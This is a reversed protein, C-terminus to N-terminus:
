RIEHLFYDKLFDVVVELPILFGIDETQRHRGKVIAVLTGTNDFVPSGSSGQQIKLQVQWLPIGSVKRPPGNVFGKHITGRLNMPCGILFVAEGMGLLNRGETINIIDDKTANVKILALDKSFDAKIVDGEYPIGTNSIIQVHEHELLDHATSLILGDKDIFFGTFQISKTKTRVHICAVNEIQSLVPEPIVSSEDKTLLDDSNSLVKLSDILLNLKELSSNEEEQSILMDTGLPSQPILEIRLDGDQSSETESVILVPNGDNSQSQEVNMGSNKLWQTVKYAVESVPLPINEQREVKFDDAEVTLM